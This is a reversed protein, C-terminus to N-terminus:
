ERGVEEGIFPDIGDGDATEDALVGMQRACEIDGRRFHRFAQADEETFGDSSVHMQAGDFIGVEIGVLFVGNLRDNFARRYGNM